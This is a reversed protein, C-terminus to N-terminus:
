NNAASLKKIGEKVCEFDLHVIADKGGLLRGSGDPWLLLRWNNAGHRAEYERLAALLSVSALAPPTPPVSNSALSSPKPKM